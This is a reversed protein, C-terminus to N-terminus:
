YNLHAVVALPCHVAIYHLIDVTKVTIKIIKNM